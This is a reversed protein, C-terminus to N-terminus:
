NTLNLGYTSNIQPYGTNFSPANNVELDIIKLESTNVYIAKDSDYATIMTKWTQNATLNRYGIFDTILSGNTFTRGNISFNTLNNTFVTLNYRLTEVDNDTAQWIVNLNNNSQNLGNSSNIQPYGLTFTINSNLILLETTNAFSNCLNGDDCVLVQAKWTEGKTTNTYQLTEVGTGPNSIARNTFTFNTINNRFWQISYNLTDGVNADSVNFRVQLNETTLNTQLAFTSNIKPTINRPAVLSAQITITTSNLLTSNQEGDFAFAQVIIQDDVVFNDITLIDSTNTGNALNTNTTRRILANNKFWEFTVSNTDADNDSFILSVNIRQLDNYTTQNFAPTTITANSNRILLQTTNIYDSCANKNDCVVIQASWNQGKTTNTHTLTAVATGPNSVSIRSLTFNTRNNTFWTINYTLTDSLDVDSVNFRVQLNETTLNLKLISTSNILPTFNNPPSNAALILLESTNARTIFEGDFLSIM